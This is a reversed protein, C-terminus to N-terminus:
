RQPYGVLYTVSVPSHRGKLTGAQWQYSNVPAALELLEKPTYARLCSVVGDFWMVFPLVPILYTFLFALPRVPRIFPLYILTGLPMLIVSCVGRFTRCPIEFIAVGERQKVADALVRRAPEPEFHHFSNFMTRFGALSEPVAEADVPECAFDIRNGSSSRALEFAEENPFKDTLRVHLNGDDRFERIMASWPGGGGSCLDVCRASGAASLASGLVPAVRKYYNTSNLVYQLIDTVADRLPRPFWRQEHIEILRLRM